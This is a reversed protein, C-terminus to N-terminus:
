GEGREVIEYAVDEAYWCFWPDEASRCWMRTGDRSKKFDWGARYITRAKKGWELEAEAKARTRNAEQRLSGPLHLVKSAERQYDILTIEAGPKSM